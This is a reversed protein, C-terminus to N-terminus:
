SGGFGREPLAKLATLKRAPFETALMADTWVHQIEETGGFAEPNFEIAGSMIMIDRLRTVLSSIIKQCVCSNTYQAKLITVYDGVEFAHKRLNCFVKASRSSWGPSSEHAV